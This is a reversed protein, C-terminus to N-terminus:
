RAVQEIPRYYRAAAWWAAVAILAGVIGDIWYHYGFLGSGIFIVLWFGVAPWRWVSDCAAIVLLAAMGLHMSPMASIGGGKVAQHDVLAAELYQQTFRIPGSASLNAALYDHLPAFRAQLLPDGLHAFIPGAASFSYAALWGGILWTAFTATFFTMVKRPEAYLSIFAVAFYTVVGWGMTYSLEWFRLSWEPAMARALRWVDTGFIAADVDAWFGEWGYGVIFPIGTKATTFGILFLPFVGGPLLLLLVRQRLMATIAALPHDAKRRAMRAIEIFIFALVALTTVGLSAYFYSFYLASTDIDAIAAITAAVTLMAGCLLLPPAWNAIVGRGRGSLIM